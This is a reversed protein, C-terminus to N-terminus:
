NAAGSPTKAREPTGLPLEGLNQQVRDLLQHLTKLEKATLGQSARSRVRNACAVVKKWVPDAKPEARVIKRRRDQESSVRSLLGDREMRDLVGVLTPPEINMREALDAQSLEGEFALWALVQCQRYTIGEPALEQNVARQYSHATMCIWHGLDGQFDYELM